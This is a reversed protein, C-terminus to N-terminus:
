KPALRDLRRKLTLLLEAQLGSQEMLDDWDEESITLPRGKSLFENLKGHRQLLDENEELLRDYFTSEPKNLATYLVYGELEWLKNVAHKEASERALRLGVDAKFNTPDVCGSFGSALFFKGDLYAHVFTSTTDGPQQVLVYTIRKKLENIQDQTVRPGTSREQLEKETVAQNTM